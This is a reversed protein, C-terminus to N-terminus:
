YLARETAVVARRILGKVPCNAPCDNKDKSLAPNMIRCLPSNKECSRNVQSRVGAPIVKNSPSTM